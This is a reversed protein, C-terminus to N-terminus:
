HVFFINLPLEHFIYCFYIILSLLTSKINRTLHIRTDNTCTNPTISPLIKPCFRNFVGITSPANTPKIIPSIFVPIIIPAVSCSIKIPNTPIPTVEKGFEEAPVIKATKKAILEPKSASEAM